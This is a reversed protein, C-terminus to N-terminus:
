FEDVAAAGTGSAAICRFAGTWGDIQLSQGGRDAALASNPELIYTYAAVTASTGRACYLTVTGANQVSLRRRAANAALVTTGTGTSVVAIPSSPVAGTATVYPTTEVPFAVASKPGLNFAVGLALGAAVVYGLMFVTSRRM